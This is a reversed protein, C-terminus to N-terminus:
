KSFLKNQTKQTNVEVKVMKEVNIEGRRLTNRAKEFKDKAQKTITENIVCITVQIVWKKLKKNIIYAVVKKYTADLDQDFLYYTFFSTM